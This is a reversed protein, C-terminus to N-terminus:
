PDDRKSTDGQLRELLPAFLPNNAALLADRHFFLPHDFALDPSCNWIFLCAPHRLSLLFSAM